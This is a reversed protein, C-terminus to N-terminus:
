ELEHKVKLYLDFYQPGVRVEEFDYLEQFSFGRLAPRHDGAPQGVEWFELM